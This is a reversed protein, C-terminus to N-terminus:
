RLPIPAIRPKGSETSRSSNSVAVGGQPIGTNLFEVLSNVNVLIKRGVRISVVDRNAVMVRAAHVTVGSIIEPIRKIPEMRPVKIESYDM